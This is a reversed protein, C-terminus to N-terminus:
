SGKQMRSRIRAEFASAIGREIERAALAAMTALMPSRFDLLADCSLRCGEGEPLFRWHVRFERWPWDFSSINLARPPDLEAVTRFRTRAPGFGFHNDVTLRKEQREVIRTGVCGPVFEPYREVDAVISFLRGPDGAPFYSEWQRSIPRAIM